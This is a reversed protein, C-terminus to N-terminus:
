SSLLFKGLYVVVTSGILPIMAATMIWDDVGANKTAVIRAWM